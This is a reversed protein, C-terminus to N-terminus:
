GAGQVWVGSVRGYWYVYGYGEGNGFDVVGGGCRRREAMTGWKVKVADIGGAAAAAARDM